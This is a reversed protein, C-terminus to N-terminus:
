AEHAVEEGTAKFLLPRMGWLNLLAEEVNPCPPLDRPPANDFFEAAVVSNIEDGLRALSIFRGRLLDKGYALQPCNRAAEKTVQTIITRGPKPAFLPLYGQWRYKAHRSCGTCGNERGVCPPTRWKSGDFVPHVWCGYLHQSLVFGQVPQKPKPWVVPYHTPQATPPQPSWIPVSTSRQGSM